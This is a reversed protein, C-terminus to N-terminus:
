DPLETRCSGPACGALLEAVQRGDVTIGFRREIWHPAEILPVWDPAIDAFFERYDQPM